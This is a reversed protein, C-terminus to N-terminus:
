AQEGGDDLLEYHRIAELIGAAFPQEAFYIDDKEILESLNEGSRNKVVVAKTNGRMMDADAGSGGAVLVQDLPLSWLNTVYRLALGKSARHPIIDVYKGFSFIVSVNQDEKRLRSNVDQILQNGDQKLDVLEYSLKFRSQNSDPQKRLAEFGQMVRAIENPSWRNEIHNKWNSSPTLSTAYHIETGLSTILIDPMPIGYEKMISLASDLRRSTNIGFTTTKRNARIIGILQKLSEKDGLLNQDIDTFIARHHKEMPRRTRATKPLMARKAVIQTIKSLYTNAHAEWSYFRPINRLGNESAQRWKEPQTLLTLLAAGIAEHDLPNVLIGNQCNGIIDVPGGNETAVLPVGCAAAELLTLGFPETLAPNVFVGTSIAANRYIAPVEDFVHHKPMAVKGYLDYFDILVLLDTLVKRAGDEMGRIDDRNGAIIVLNALKQLEESEGYAKLLTEINKRGDARSLALIMPKDPADLFRRIDGLVDPSREGLRPPYFKKLDIGPPIVTMLEPHYYDYIEYQDNIENRTSTIVLEANALVEEEAEIRRDINYQENIDQESMGTALLRRRKDRGLSHGTHVLPIGTLHSTRVAVYGADAYHSHLLDPMRERSKLWDVTNDVFNDLHDWLQEKPLYEEPGADLRIISAKSSLKEELRAYEEDVKDDIVRRTLLEVRAVDDLRALAKALEVVYLVQGGTDADRGLELNGGRILGHISFLVIYLGHKPM